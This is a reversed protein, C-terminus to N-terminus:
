HPVLKPRRDISIVELGAHSPARLAGLFYDGVTFIINDAHADKTTIWRTAQNLSRRRGAAAAVLTM